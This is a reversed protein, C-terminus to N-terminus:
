DGRMLCVVSEVGHQRDTRVRAAWGCGDNLEAVSTTRAAIPQRARRRSPDKGRCDARDPQLRNAALDVMVEGLSIERELVVKRGFVERRVEDGPRNVAVDHRRHCHRERTSRAVRQRRIRHRDILRLSREDHAVVTVRAVIEVIREGGVIAVVADEAVGEQRADACTPRQRRSSGHTKREARGELYRLEGRQENRRRQRRRDGADDRDAVRVQFRLKRGLVIHTDFLDEAALAARQMERRVDILRVITRRDRYRHGGHRRRVTLFFLSQGIRM